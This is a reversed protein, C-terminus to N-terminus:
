RRREGKGREGGKETKEGREGDVDEEGSKRWRRKGVGDRNEGEDGELVKTVREKGRTRRWRGGIGGGGGGKRDEGGGRRETGRIWEGKESKERRKEASSGM